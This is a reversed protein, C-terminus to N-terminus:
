LGFFGDQDIAALFTNRPWGAIAMLVCRLEVGLRQRALHTKSCDRM